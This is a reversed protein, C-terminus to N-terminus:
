SMSSIASIPLSDTVLRSVTASAAVPASIPLSGTVPGSLSYLRGSSDFDAGQEPEGM